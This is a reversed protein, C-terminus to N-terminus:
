IQSYVHGTGDLEPPFILFTDFVQLTNPDRSGGKIAARM